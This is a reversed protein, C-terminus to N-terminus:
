LYKLERSIMHGLDLISGTHKASSPSSALRYVEDDDTGEAKGTARCYILHRGM